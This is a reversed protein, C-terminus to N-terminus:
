DRDDPVFPETVTSGDPGAVVDIRQGGLADILDAAHSAVVVTLGFTEHIWRATAAFAARGPEDLGEPEDAFLFRLRSSARRSVVLAIAVHLAFDITTRQGGSCGEYVPAHGGLVEVDLAESVGESSRRERQTSLAIQLGYPFRRLVDNATQEVAPIVAAELVAVRCARWATVLVTLAAVDAAVIGIRQEVGELEVAAARLEVLRGRLEAARTRAEDLRSRAAALDATASEWEAAARSAAARADGHELLLLNKASRRAEIEARRENLKAVAEDHEALVQEAKAITEAAATLQELDRASQRARTLRENVLTTDPADPAVTTRIREALDLEAQTVESAATLQEALAQIGDVDQKADRLFLCAALEGTSIRALVPCESASLREEQRTAATIQTNLDRATQERAIRIGDLNRELTRRASLVVDRDRTISAADVLSAELVAISARAGELEHRARQLKPKESVVADAVIKKQAWNRIEHDIADVDRKLAQADALTRDYEDAKADNRDYETRTDTVKQELEAFRGADFLQEADAQTLATWVAEVLAARARLPEAKAHLQGLTTEAARLNTRTAEALEDFMSLGAAQALLQKREEPRARMFADANRQVVISSTTLVDDDLGGLIRDIHAQGDAVKGTSLPHWGVVLNDGALDLGGARQLVDLTSSAGRATKKVRRVVRYVQGDVGRLEIVASAMDAGQRVVQDSVKAGYRSAGFLGFRMADAGITSKGSGVAGTLAYVGHGDFEVRAEHVGLFDTCEIARVDVDGGADAKGVARLSELVNIGHFLVREKADSTLDDRSGLYEGLANAPTATTETRERDPRTVELEVQVLSAGADYLVKSIRSPPYERASAEDCTVHVRIKEGESVPWDERQNHILNALDPGPIDWTSVDPGPIEVFSWLAARDPRPLDAVIVGHPDTESFDLPLLSGPIVVTSGAPISGADARPRVTQRATDGLGAGGVFQHRHIHGVIALDFRTADEVSIRWETGGIFGMSYGSSTSTGAVTGHAVLVMPIGRRRQALFGELIEGAAVTLEHAIQEKTANGSLRARVFADPLFPLVAIDVDDRVLFPMVGPESPVIIRGRFYRAIEAADPDHNGKAMIATVSLREFFHGVVKLADPSPRNHHFLDGGILLLDVREETIIDLVRDLAREQEDLTTLHTAGIHLDAVALIRTM